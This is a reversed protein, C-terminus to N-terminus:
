KRTEALWLYERAFALEEGIETESFLFSFLCGSATAPEGIAEWRRRAWMPVPSFVDVVRGGGPGPRVRFVQPSGREQDIAAQLRWAEDCGRVIGYQTPLDILRVARGEDVEVYCWLDAGYAQPRRGVFYGTQRESEVWRGRYYRPSREPDLIILGPVEGSARAGALRCQMRSIHEAATEHTPLRTWASLKIEILGLESLQESLDSSDDRLIRVHGVYLIAQQFSEPVVAVGDPAVGLLMVSGSERRVFSPPAAFLLASATEDQSADSVELLDGHAVLAELTDEVLVMLDSDAPLGRLPEVVSKVLTRASCPCFLGAARRLSCALAEVSTLDFRSNDLGLADVATANLDAPKLVRM